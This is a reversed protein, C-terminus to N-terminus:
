QATVNITGARILEFNSVSIDANLSIVANMLANRDITMIFTILDARTLSRSVVFNNLFTTVSDQVISRYTDRDFGARLTVTININVTRKTVPLVVVETGAPRYDILATLVSDKLLTPLNGNADHVYAQIEGINDSVYAGQVGPVKLCGYQIASLTGRALTEIYTTFRKKYEEKTEEAKGNLFAEENYVSQVVALPTVMLRISNAPVNGSTGSEVCRVNLVASLTGEECLVEETVEFYVLVGGVPMTSLRFGVPIILRQSLYNKFELVVTGTSATAPAPFFGFSNSISNEVADGFARRMKFYMAELEVAVAELVTRLASGVRFNNLKPNNFMVWSAMGSLIEKFTRIKLSM